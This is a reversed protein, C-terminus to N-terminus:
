LQDSKGNLTRCGRPVDEIGRRLHGSLEKVATKPIRTPYCSIVSSSCRESACWAYGNAVVDKQCGRNIIVFSLPVNPSFGPTYSRYGRSTPLYKVDPNM